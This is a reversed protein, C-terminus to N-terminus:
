ITGAHSPPLSCAGKKYRFRYALYNGLVRIKQGQTFYAIAPPLFLKIASPLNNNCVISRAEETISSTEKFVLKLADSILQHYQFIM